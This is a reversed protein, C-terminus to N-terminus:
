GSKGARSSCCNWTVEANSTTSNCIPRSTRSRNQAADLGAEDAVLELEVFDGVDAVRDLAAEVKDARGPSM